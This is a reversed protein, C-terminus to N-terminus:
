NVMALLFFNLEKKINVKYETVKNLESIPELPKKM